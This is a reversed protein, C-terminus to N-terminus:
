WPYDDSIKWNDKVILAGCYNGTAGKSCSDTQGSIIDERSFEHGRPLLKGEYDPHLSNQVWYEFMFIDKGVTNSFKKGNVDVYFYIVKNNESGNTQMAVFMGDNLYFRRWLSELTKVSGNLEKFKYECEDTTKNKCDEMLVLDNKLYDDFFMNTSVQSVGSPFDWYQHFGNLVETKKFAQGLINSTKQLQAVTQQKITNVFLKGLLLTALLGIIVIAVLAEALTFGKKDAEKLRM